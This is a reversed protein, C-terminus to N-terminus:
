NDSAGYTKANKKASNHEKNPLKFIKEVLLKISSSPRLCVALKKATGIQKRATNASADLLSFTWFTQTKNQACNEPDEPQFILAQQTRTHLLNTKHGCFDVRFVREM